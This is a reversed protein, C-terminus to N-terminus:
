EFSLLNDSLRGTKAECLKAAWNEGCALLRRGRELVNKAGVTDAHEL